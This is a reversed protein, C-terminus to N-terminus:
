DFIYNHSKILASFIDAVLERFIAKKRGQWWLNHFVFFAKLTIVLLCDLRLNSM